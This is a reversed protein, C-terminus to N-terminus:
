GRADRLKTQLHERLQELQQILRRDQHAGAKRRDEITDEVAKILRELWRHDDDSAL